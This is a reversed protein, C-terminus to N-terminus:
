KRVMQRTGSGDPKQHVIQLPVMKSWLVNQKKGEWIDHIMLILVIFVFYFESCHCQSIYGFWKM